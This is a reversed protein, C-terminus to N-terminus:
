SVLGLKKRGEDTLQNSSWPPEWTQRVIVHRVGPMKLLREEIPLSLTPHVSISGHAFYGARPRGRHPMTMFVTVVDDRVRIDYILGLEVVNIDATYLQADKCDRLAAWIAAKPIPSDSAEGPRALQGPPEKADIGGPIDGQSVMLPNMLERRLKEIMAPGAVETFPLMVYANKERLVAGAPLQKGTLPYRSWLQGHWRYSFTPAGSHKLEPLGEARHELFLAVFSDKSDKNFFGVGWLDDQSQPDVEGLRLKGDRGMWVTGTFSRGSFVWEDDRLAEAEFSKIAEM